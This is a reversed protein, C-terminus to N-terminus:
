RQRTQKLACIASKYAEEPHFAQLEFSLFCGLQNCTAIEAGCARDTHRKLNVIDPMSFKISQTPRELTSLSVESRIHFPLNASNLTYISQSTQSPPRCCGEFFIQM